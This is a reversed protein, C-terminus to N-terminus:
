RTVCNRVSPTLQRSDAPVPDTYTELYNWYRTSGKCTVMSRKIHLERKRVTTEHVEKSIGWISSCEDCDCDCDCGQKVLVRDLNLFYLSQQVTCKKNYPTHMQCRYATKSAAVDRFASGGWISLSLSLLPIPRYTPCEGRYGLEPPSCRPYRLAFTQDRSSDAGKYRKM